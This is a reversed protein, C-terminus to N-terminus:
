KNLRAEPPFDVVKPSGIIVQCQAQWARTISTRRLVFDGFRKNPQSCNQERLACRRHPMSPVRSQFSSPRM